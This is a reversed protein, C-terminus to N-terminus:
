AAAANDPKTEGIIATTLQAHDDLENVVFTRLSEISNVTDIEAQRFIHEIQARTVDIGSHIKSKTEATMAQENKHADLINGLVEFADHLTKM